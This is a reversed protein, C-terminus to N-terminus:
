KQNQRSLINEQEVLSSTTTYNKTKLQHITDSFETNLSTLAIANNKIDQLIQDTPVNSTRIENMLNNLINVLKNNLNLIYNFSENFKAKNKLISDPEDLLNQLTNSVSKHLSDLTDAYNKIDPTKILTIADDFKAHAQRVLLWTALYPTAVAGIGLGAYTAIKQTTTTDFINKVQIGATKAQQSSLLASMTKALYPASFIGAGFVNIYLAPTKIKNVVYDFANKTSSYITSFWSSKPENARVPHSLIGLMIISFVTKKIINM